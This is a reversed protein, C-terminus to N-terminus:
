IAIHAFTPATGRVQTQGASTRCYMRANNESSSAAFCSRCYSCRLSTYKQGFHIKKFYKKWQLLTNDNLNEVNRQTIENFQSSGITANPLVVHSRHQTFTKIICKKKNKKTNKCDTTKVIYICATGHLPM